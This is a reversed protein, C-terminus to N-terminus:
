IFITRVILVLSLMVFVLACIILSAKLNEVPENTTSVSPASRYYYVLIGQGIRANGLDASSYSRGDVIYTYVIHLIATGKGATVFQNTVIGRTLGEQSAIKIM